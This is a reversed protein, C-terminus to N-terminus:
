RFLGVHCSASYYHAPLIETEAIDEQLSSFEGEVLSGGKEGLPYLLAGLAAM